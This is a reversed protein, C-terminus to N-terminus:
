AVTDEEQAFVEKIIGSVPANVPVDIKDTEITAVEDDQKVFEGVQKTWQKLTGETISEAMQPVQVVKDAYFRKQSIFVTSPVIYSLQSNVSRSSLMSTHLRGAKTTSPLQHGYSLLRRSAVGTFCRRINKSPHLNRALM